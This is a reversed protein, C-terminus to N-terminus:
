TKPRMQQQYSDIAVKIESRAPEANCQQLLSEVYRALEVCRMARIQEEIATDALRYDARRRDDYLDALIRAADMALPHKSALLPKHLDHDKGTNFGIGSLFETVLHFAGYYARSISTRIRAKETQVSLTGALAIFEVPKM